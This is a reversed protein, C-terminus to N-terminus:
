GGAPAFVVTLVPASEGKERSHFSQEADANEAADRILLGHLAASDYMAQVQATVDWVRAGVGSATTAPAGATGPQANWTVGSESWGTAVRLAQLERGATASAAFLRLSASGVRCGQPIGPPLAFQVLARFNDRPGKSRVKLISDGGFNNAASNQDLWSDASSVLTLSPCAVSPPDIRWAHVASSADTNGAADTARVEFRHAGLALGAYAQPSACPAYPAGDLACEFRAGLENATFTLLASTSTTVAPPGSGITTEPATVDPPAVVTWELFAPSADVNGAADTARVEFRHAGLALGTYAAPSGCDTFAAGDLSCEFRTGLENASFAFVASTSTTSADPGSDITTEPATVDPPPVISWQRVAPSADTNGAADTARVEFRHEGLALGLYVQPSVCAAFTGGDLSCEFTSGDENASFAFGADRSATGAPPGSDIVTEPAARGVAARGDM